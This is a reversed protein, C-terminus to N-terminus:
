SSGRAAHTLPDPSLKLAFNTKSGLHPYDQQAFHLFGGTNSV